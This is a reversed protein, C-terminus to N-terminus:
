IKGKSPILLVSFAYNWIFALLEVIKLRNMDYGGTLQRQLIQCFDVPILTAANLGVAVVVM